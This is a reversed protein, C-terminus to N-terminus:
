WQEEASMTEGGLYQDIEKVVGHDPENAHYRQLIATLLNSLRQRGNVRNGVHSASKWILLPLPSSKGFIPDDHAFM